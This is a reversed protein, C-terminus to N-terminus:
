GNRVTEVTGLYDNYRTPDEEESFVTEGPLDVVNSDQGGYKSYSFSIQDDLSGADAGRLLLAQPELHSHFEKVVTLPQGMLHEAVFGMTVDDPLRIRDCLTEFRGGGAEPRM